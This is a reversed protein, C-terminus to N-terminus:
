VKLLKKRNLFFAIFTIFILPLTLLNLNIWGGTFLVIGAFLSALMQCLVVIFDNLGQAKFRETHNHSQSLLLTSSIYLFNWGVGILVLAIWYFLVDHALIGFLVALFFSGLGALLIRYVGFKEILIGTVLSPLFMAVVHSQTIFVISDLGYHSLTHMHIPVATTIFTMFGFGTAAALVAIYFHPKTIINKLPRETKLHAEEEHTRTNKMFLILVISLAFLGALFIFPGTFEPLSFMDKTVKAIEPGIIGSLIGAFLVFGVAEGAMHKSVSESAAFRYQQVFAGYFGLFFSSICFLYFNHQSVAFAALLAAFFALISAFLFGYKRGIRRMLLAAPITGAAIGVIMITAPLTALTPSPAIEAGIFGGLLILITTSSGGIIQALFLLYINRPFALYKHYM